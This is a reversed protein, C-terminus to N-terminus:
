KLLGSYSISQIYRDMYQFDPEGRQDVPLLIESKKMREAHWKRGYNFRFREARISVCIFMAVRENMVFKPKLVIIDDSAWYDRPQYFAYGVSGNYVVSITGAPYKSQSIYDTIGNNDKSAGIFPVGGKMKKRRTSTIRTGKYIDFLKTVPVHGWAADKVDDVPLSSAPQAADPFSQLKASRAWDPIDKTSPVLLSPLTRNAQRGYSFRYRNFRICACYFLIEPRSLKVRPKLIAVDRGTYFKQEQLRTTLVGNGGLACSIEGAEAPEVSAIPEVYASIGNDGTKRSIFAFGKEPNALKLRNLELSHGYRIDFIESLPVTIM